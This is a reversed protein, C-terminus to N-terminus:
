VRVFLAESTQLGFLHSFIAAFLLCHQIQEVKAFFIGWDTLSCRCVIVDSMDKRGMDYLLFLAMSSSLLFLWMKVPWTAKQDEQLSHRTEIEIRMREWILVSNLPLIILTCLQFIVLSTFCLTTRLTIPQFSNLMGYLGFAVFITSVISCTMILLVNAPYAQCTRVAYLLLTAVFTAFIGSLFELFSASFLFLEHTSTRSCNM